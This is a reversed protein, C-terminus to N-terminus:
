SSGRPECRVLAPRGSTGAGPVLYSLWDRVGVVASVARAWASSSVVALVGSCGLDHLVDATLEEALFLLARLDAARLDVVCFRSSRGRVVCADPCGRVPREFVAGSMFGAVVAELAEGPGPAEALLGFAASLGNGPVLRWHARNRYPRLISVAATLCDPWREYGSAIIFVFGADAPFLPHVACSWVRLFRTVHSCSFGAGCVWRISPSRVGFLVGPLQRPLFDALFSPVDDWFVFREGADGADRESLVV